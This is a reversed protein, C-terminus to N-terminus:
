ESDTHENDEIVNFAEMVTESIERVLEAYNDLEISQLAIRNDYDIEFDCNYNESDSFDYHEVAYDIREEILGAIKESIKPKNVDALDRTLKEQETVLNKVGNSSEEILVTLEKIRTELQEKNM